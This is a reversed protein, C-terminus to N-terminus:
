KSLWMAVGFMHTDPAVSTVRLKGQALPTDSDADAGVPFVRLDLDGLAIADEASAVSHRVPDGDYQSGELIVDYTQGAVWYLDDKGEIRSGFLVCADDEVGGGDGDLTVDIAEFAGSKLALCTAQLSGGVNAAMLEYVGTPDSSPDGADADDSACATFLALTIGGVIRTLYM